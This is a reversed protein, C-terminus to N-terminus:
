QQVSDNEVQNQQGRTPPDDIPPPLVISAAFDALVGNSTTADEEQALWWVGGAGLGVVSVVFMFVVKRAMGDGKYDADGFAAAVRESRTTTARPPPPRQPLPPRPPLPPRAQNPPKPQPPIHQADTEASRAPNKPTQGSTETRAQPPPETSRRMNWGGRRRQTTGKDSGFFRRSIRDCQGNRRIRRIPQFVPLTVRWMRDARLM